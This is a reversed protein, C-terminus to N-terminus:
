WCDCGLLGSATRVGLKIYIHIISARHGDSYNLPESTPGRSIYRSCGFSSVAMILTQSVVGGGLQPNAHLAPVHVHTHTGAPSAQGSVAGLAFM